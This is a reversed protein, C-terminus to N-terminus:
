SESARVWKAVPKTNNKEENGKLSGRM